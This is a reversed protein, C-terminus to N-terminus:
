STEEPRDAPLRLRTDPHILSPDAGITARNLAYIEPWRRADGLHVAALEWLSDGPRVVVTRADDGTTRVPGTSRLAHGPLGVARDPFPLGALVAPPRRDTHVDGPTAQAPVALGAALGTGCAVLVLRRLGAPVGPTRTPRGRVAEAVTVTAALWLWGTGLLGVAACTRVLLDDFAAPGDASAMPLLWATSAAALATAVVWVALCRSWSAHM